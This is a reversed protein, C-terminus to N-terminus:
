RRRPHSVVADFLEAMRRMSHEPTNQRASAYAGASLEAVREPNGLVSGLADAMADIDGDPVLIGNEGDVLMDSPGFNIDYSVV